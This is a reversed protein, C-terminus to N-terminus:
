WIKPLKISRKLDKFTSSTFIGTKEYEIGEKWCKLYIASPIAIGAATGIFRLVSDIIKAATESGTRQKEAKLEKERIQNEFEKNREAAELEKEKVQTERIKAVAKAYEARAHEDFIGDLDDKANRLIKEMAENSQIDM